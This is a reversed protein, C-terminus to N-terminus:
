TCWRIKIICQLCYCKNFAHNVIANDFLFAFDHVKVRKSVFYLIISVIIFYNSQCRRMWNLAWDYTKSPGLGHQKINRCRASDYVCFLLVCAITSWLQPRIPRTYHGCPAFIFIPSVFQNLILSSLLHDMSLPLGIRYAIWNSSAPLWRVYCEITAPPSVSKKPVLGLRPCHRAIHSRVSFTSHVFVALAVMIYVFALKQQRFYFLIPNM